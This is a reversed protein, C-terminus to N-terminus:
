QTLDVPYRFQFIHFLVVCAIIMFLFIAMEVWFLKSSWMAKLYSGTREELETLSHTLMTQMKQDEKGLRSFILNELHLSTNIAKFLWFHYLRNQIMSPIVVLIVVLEVLASLRINLIFVDPAWYYLAAAVSTITGFLTLVRVRVGDMMKDIHNITARTEKWLSILIEDHKM